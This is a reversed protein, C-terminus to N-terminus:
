QESLGSGNWLPAPISCGWLSRLCRTCLSLLCQLQVPLLEKTVGLHGLVPLSCFRPLLVSLVKKFASTLRTQAPSYIICLVFCPPAGLLQLQFPAPAPPPERPLFALRFGM